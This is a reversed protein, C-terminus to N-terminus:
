LVKELLTIDRYSLIELIQVLLLPKKVSFSFNLSFKSICINEREKLQLPLLVVKKRKRKPLMFNMNTILIRFAEAMPSFTM